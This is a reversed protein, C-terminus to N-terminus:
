DYGGVLIGNAWYGFAEGQIPQIVLDYIPVVPGTSSEKSIILMPQTGSTGPINELMFDGIYTDNAEMWEMQNIYMNHESTVEINGNFILREPLNETYVCVEIVEAVTLMQLIPDYSLILEGIQINEVPKTIVPNGPAMTIQTGQIVGHGHNRPLNVEFESWDSEYGFIDKAKAKILYTGKGGWTHSVIIEEGSEYPGIWDEILGDDWDIYYYVDDDEPDNTVFNYDMKEGAGGTTPGDITPADPCTNDRVNVLLVDSWGSEALSDKTKVRIFYTREEEWTHSIELETGSNYWDQSWDVPTDDGWDIMYKISNDDVDEIKISYSEESGSLTFSPGSPRLPIYPPENGRKGYTVFPIDYSTYTEWYDPEGYEPKSYHWFCYDEDEYCELSFATKYRKHFSDEFGLETDCVFFYSDNPTDLDNVFDFTKFNGKGLYSWGSPPVIIKGVEDGEPGNESENVSIILDLDPKYNEHWIGMNIRLKTIHSYGRTLFNQAAKQVIETGAGEEKVRGVTKIDTWKMVRKPYEVVRGDSWSQFTMNLDALENYSETPYGDWFEPISHYGGSGWSDYDEESANVFEFAENITVVGDGNWYDPTGRRYDGFVDLGYAMYETVRGKGADDFQGPGCATVIARGDSQLYNIASGSSCSDIIIAIGMSDLSNIYGNLM